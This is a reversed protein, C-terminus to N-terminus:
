QGKFGSAKVPGAWMKYEEERWKTLDEASSARPQVGMAVLKANVDPEKAAKILADSLKKATAPAVGAKVYMDFGSEFAVDIGQEKLTPVDPFAPWRQPGATALIKMRGARAHETYDSISTFLMPLHGPILDALAPASGRYPVHTMKAGTAMAIMVGAFHSSTGAGPSGYSAKEPNAKAWALFEKMNNVGIKTTAGVGVQFAVVRTLPIVDKFPDFGTKDGYVHPVISLLANAVFLITRGDAPSKLLEGMAIRQGAGPKPEVIVTEGLTAQMKDALLRAITDTTAGAQVGHIIRIQNSQAYTSSATLAFVAVATAALAFKRIM